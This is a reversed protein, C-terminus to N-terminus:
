LRRRTFEHAGESLSETYFVWSTGSVTAEGVEVGNDFIVVTRTGGQATGQVAIFNNTTIGDDQTGSDPSFGTIVPAAPAVTDIGITMPNSPLSINGAADVARAEYSAYGDAITGTTVSWDGNGDATTTAILGGGRFINITVNADATGTFTLTNDFTQNDSSSYGTDDSFGTIVPVAPATTDVTVSFVASPDSEGYGGPATAVVTFDHDGDALTGTLFHWNGAGDATVTGLSVGGDFIEVTASNATKGYLDLANDRTIGDGSAGTDNSYLTITPTATVPPPGSSVTLDLAASTDSVNGVNDSVRATFSYSGEALEETTFSWTGNAASTVTGIVSGGSLIEVTSNAAATGTLTPTTDSTIGDGTPLSDDSFGTIVPADPATTDVFVLQTGSYSSSRGAADTARVTISHVGEALTDATFSWNGSVDAVTTGLVTSGDRVTITAGAESTGSFTPTTDSTRFDGPTGTDDSMSVLVPVPPATLDVTFEVENSEGSENGVYDRAVATFSHTGEPLASVLLTWNGGNVQATGVQVGDRYVAVTNSGAAATGSVYTWNFSSIGDDPEAGNDNSLGTIVPAAPPVTDISVVYNSSQVSQNGAADVARAHFYHFGDAIVGTSASWDGNGDAIGTAVLTGGLYVNVTEGAGATGTFTLTNDSTQFDPNGTDDSYGTIAPQDPRTADITVDFAATEASENGAGDRATATFSHQGDALTATTFSWTGGGVVQATGLEVGVDYIVVTSGSAGTGTLTLTTDNTLGDGQVGSDNAFSVIAPMAPATTDINVNVVNSWGSSNGAEDIARAEYAAYGEPLEGTTITWNGDGDATTSGALGGGRFLQVTANTEATGTFTLTTDSTSGAQTGTDDSFGSIVPTAPASNDLVIDHTVTGSQNGAADVGYAEITITGNGLASIDAGTLTWSGGGAVAATGSVTAGSGDRFTVFVQQGGPATGSVTLSGDALAGVINDGDVPGSITVVPATTDIAVDFQDSYTSISSSPATARAHFIYSGDALEATTFSWNGSGDATAMGISVGGSYIEVTAGAVSTGELTLTADNTRADGEVGSDESFGTIVPPPTAPILITVDLGDSMPSVNGAADAARATFSHDGQNLTGADYSWDGNGDATTTGLFSNQNFISVTANAEATGTITLTTDATIGDGATGTDDSFGTIVPADPNETDITVALADTEDSENGVYDRSAATFSHDGDALDGTAFSWAGANPIVTGIEVGNDYIVVRSVGAPATGTLTLNGDATIGDGAAGTDLSYNDLTPADPAVTDINIALGNSMGSQNGVDDVARAYYTSVGDARAATTATWNGSGDATGTAVVTVGVYVNVTVGAEATGTFTLTNDATQNDGDFGTDDSFDLIVPAAPGVNDLTM